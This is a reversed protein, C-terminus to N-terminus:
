AEKSAYSKETNNLRHQELCWQVDEPKFRIHRCFRYAPLIQREVLRYVTLKTIGLCRAVDAVNLLEGLPLTLCTMEKM